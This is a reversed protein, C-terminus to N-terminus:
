EVICLPVVVMFDFMRAELLCFFWIHASEFDNFNLIQVSECVLFDLHHAVETPFIWIQASEYNLCTQKTNM